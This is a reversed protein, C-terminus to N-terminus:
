SAMSRSNGGFRISRIRGVLDSPFTLGPPLQSIPVTRIM